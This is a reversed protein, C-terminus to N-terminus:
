YDNREGTFFGDLVPIDVGEQRFGVGSQRIEIREHRFGIGEERIEIEEGRFLM